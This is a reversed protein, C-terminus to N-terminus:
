RLTHGPLPGSLVIPGPTTGKDSYEITIILSRYHSFNTPVPALAGLRGDSGVQGAFGLRQSDSHSNYLWVAYAPIASSNPRLGTAALTLTQTSGQQSIWGLGVAHSRASTPKLNIQALLQTSGTAGSAGSAGSAGTFTKPSNSSGGSLVVALVIVGAIAALGGLLIAGNRRSVAPRPPPPPPASGFAAAAEGPTSPTPSAPAPPPASSPGAGAGEAPIDPLEVRSLPRLEGAVGRAWARAAASEALVAHTATAQESSQQGLLYDGLEYRRAAPLPETERPALADLAAHARDRVADPQIKLLAAIEGYSRGKQLVLSLVARQEPPLSDIPSM